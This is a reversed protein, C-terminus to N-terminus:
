EPAYMDRLELLREYNGDTYLKGSYHPLRGGSMFSGSWYTNSKDFADIMKDFYKKLRERKGRETKLAAALVFEMETSRNIFKDVIQELDAITEKLTETPLPGTFACRGEYTRLILLADLFTHLRGFFTAPVFTSNVIEASERAIKLYNEAEQLVIPSVTNGRQPPPADNTFKSQANKIFRFLYFCCGAVLFLAFVGGISM